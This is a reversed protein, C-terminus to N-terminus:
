APGAPADIRVLQAPNGMMVGWDPVDRTVLALAAIRAHDGVHVDGVVACGAGFEVGEGASAVGKQSGDRRVANGITVNHRLVCGSGLVVNPHLVIGHPHFLRLGPGIQAEPPLDLSLVMSTFLRYATCLLRGARGGRTLLWQALRFVLLVFQSDRNGANVAWDQFLWRRFAARDVATPHSRSRRRNKEIDQSASNRSVDRVVNTTRAV